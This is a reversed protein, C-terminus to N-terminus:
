AKEITPNVNIDLDIPAALVLHNSRCAGFM